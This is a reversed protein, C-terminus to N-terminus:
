WGALKYAAGLNYYFPPLADDREEELLSAICSAVMGKKHDRPRGSKLPLATVTHDNKKKRPFPPPLSLSLYLPNPKILM